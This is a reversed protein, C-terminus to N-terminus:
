YGFESGVREGAAGTRCFLIWERWRFIWIWRRALGGGRGSGECGRVSVAYWGRWPMPEALKMVLTKGADELRASAIKLERRATQMQAKVAVYPPCADGGVSGGGSCVAGGFCELEGGRGVVSEDVARDFAVRVEDKGPRWAIM